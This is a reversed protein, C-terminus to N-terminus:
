IKFSVLRLCLHEVFSFHVLMQLESNLPKKFATFTPLSKMHNPVIEGINQDWTLCHNQVMYSQAFQDLISIIGTGLM